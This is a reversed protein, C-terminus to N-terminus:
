EPVLYRRRGDRVEHFACGYVQQLAAPTITSETAGLRHTGDGCLLLAHTAFRLALNVDHLAMIVLAGGRARAAYLGLVALQYPLDLHNAPEDLLYVPTDQALVAAIEARRREGGSLTALTRMQMEALGVAALAARALALDQVDNGAFSQRYPHRGSLALEMATAPFETEYGQLLLAIHRARQRAPWAGLERGDLTVTGDAAARLGALTHLLSTKGSGNAGLVAWIQGPAFTADLATLLRRAGVAISLQHTALVAM